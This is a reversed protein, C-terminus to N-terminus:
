EGGGLASAVKGKASSAKKRQASRVKRAGEVVVDMTGVGEVKAAWAVLLKSVDNRDHAVKMINVV